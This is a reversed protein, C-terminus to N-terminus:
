HSFSYVYRSVAAVEDDTLTAGGMPPMPIAFEVPQAVGNRVISDIAALSGDGHLWVGDTLDPAMSTGTGERTHCAACNGKGEYIEKGDVSVAAQVLRVPTAAFAAAALLAGARLVSTRSIM